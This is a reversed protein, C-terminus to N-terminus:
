KTRYSRAARDVRIVDPPAQTARLGASALLSDAIALREAHPEPAIWDREAVTSEAQWRDVDGHAAVHRRVLERGLGRRRHGPAVGVSVVARERPGDGASLVLGVIRDGLVAASASGTGNVAARLIATATAAEAPAITRPSVVLREATAPDVIDIITPEGPASPGAVPVVAGDTVTVLPDWWGRDVAERVLRPIVARRVSRALEASRLEAM